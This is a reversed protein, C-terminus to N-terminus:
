FVEEEIDEIGYGNELLYDNIGEILRRRVYYVKGESYRMKKSINRYTEQKTSFYRLNAFSKVETDNSLMLWKYVLKEADTLETDTSDLIGLIDKDKADLKTKINIILGEVYEDVLLKKRM